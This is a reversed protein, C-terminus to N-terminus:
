ETGIDDSTIDDSSIDNNTITDTIIDDSTIDNSTITDTTIDNSTIDNSTDNTNGTSISDDSDSNSDSDSDSDDNKTKNDGYKKMMDIEDDYSYKPEELLELNFNMNQSQKNINQKNPTQKVSDNLYKQIFEILITFVLDYIQDHNMEKVSIYKNIKALKTTELYYPYILKNMKLKELPTGINKFDEPYKDKNEIIYDKLKDISVQKSINLHIHYDAETLLKNQPLSMGIVIVGTQKYKNIDENLKDWDIADDTYLNIIEQDESLTIKTNYNKKYYNYTDLLKFKFDREISEGLEQKGCGPLGSILIIFQGKLEIYKEVINKSM